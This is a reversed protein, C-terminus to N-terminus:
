RTLNKEVNRNEKINGEDEMEKSNWQLEIPQIKEYKQKDADGDSQLEEGKKLIGKDYLERSKQEIEEDSQVEVEGKSIETIPEEVNETEQQMEEEMGKCWKIEATTPSKKRECKRNKREELREKEALKEKDALERKRQEKM